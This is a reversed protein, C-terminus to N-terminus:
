ELVSKPITIVPRIGWDSGTAVGRPGFFGGNGVSWALSSGSANPSLTWYGYNIAGYTNSTAGSDAYVYTNEILWSLETNAPGNYKTGLAYQTSSFNYRYDNALTWHYANTGTGAGTAVTIARMEEGTIMRAKLNTTITNEAVICTGNTCSLTGYNYTGSSTDYTYNLKLSDDWSSTATELAKLATIPGKNTNGYSGWNLDDNYDTQTVWASTNVLNHDMQLTITSNSTTDDVTIVRWKYCTEGTTCTSNNVSDYQLLQGLTYAVYTTQVSTSGSTVTVGNQDKTVTYDTFSLTYETVVGNNFSITGSSPKDGDVTYDLVVGDCTAIGNSITCSSPNFENVMNKSVIHKTLGDVYLNASSIVSQEKTDEIINLIIPTAIIAIIALIVIVALLEILTFGKKM